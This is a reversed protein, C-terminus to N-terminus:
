IFINEEKGLLLKEDIIFYKLNGDTIQTAKNPPFLVSQGIEYRDCTAHINTITGFQYQGSVELGAISDSLEVAVMPSQLVIPPAAM